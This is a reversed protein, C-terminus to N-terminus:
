YDSDNDYFWSSSFKNYKSAIVRFNYDKEDLYIGFPSVYDYFEHITKIYNLINTDIYTTNNHDKNLIAIAEIKYAGDCDKWYKEMLSLNDLYFIKPFPKYFLEGSPERINENIYIICPYEYLKETPIINYCRMVDNFGKMILEHHSTQTFYNWFQEM